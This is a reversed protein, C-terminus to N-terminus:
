DEEDGIVSPATMQDNGFASDPDGEVLYSPRQHEDDEEGEGRRGGPAGGMPGGGRGGMGAPVMGGRPAASSPGSGGAPLGGKPAAGAGGGAGSGFNGFGGGFGGAGASPGASPGAGTTPGPLSPNPGTSTAPNWGSTNTGSGPTVGPIGTYDDGNGSGDGPQFQGNDGVPAIGSHGGSPGGTSTGGPGNYVSGISPSGVREGGISNNDNGGGGITQPPAIFSPTQADVAALSATYATLYSVQERKVADAADKQAKLDAQLAPLGGTLAANLAQDVNFEQPAPLKRVEAAAASQQSMQASMLQASTGATGAATALPTLANKASDAAVGTWANDLKSVASLLRNAADALDNGGTNFAQGLTDATTPANKQTAMDYLQQSSFGMWNPTDTIARDDGMRVDDSLEAAQQGAIYAQVQARNWQTQFDPDNRSSRELDTTQEGAYVQTEYPGETNQQGNPAM